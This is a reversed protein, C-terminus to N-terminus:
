RVRFIRGSLKHMRRKEYGSWEEEPKGDLDLAFCIDEVLPDKNRRSHDEEKERSLGDEFAKIPDGSGAVM